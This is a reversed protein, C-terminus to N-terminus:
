TSSDGYLAMFREAVNQMAKSGPKLDSAAILLKKGKPDALAQDKLDKVKDDGVHDNLKQLGDSAWKGEGKIPAPQDADASAAASSLAPRTTPNGSMRGAQGANNALTEALEPANSLTKAGADLLKAATAAGYKSVLKKGAVAGAAIIPNGGSAALAAGGVGTETLGIFRNGTERAIKNNLLEEAVKSNSFLKKGAKLTDLLEPTGLAKAGADTAKDIHDSIVGYAERAMKEKDTVNLSNKWNAVKGLEQKLEQADALPIPKDGRMTIAELTNELQHTEGRNIPSRYFDGVKKEVDTAADLPNFTSGGADDIAKYVKGMKDGGVSQVAANREAMTESSALPSIVGENLAQRGAALVKDLGFKKITAREAGLARAALYEAGSGLKDGVASVADGALPAAASLAGGAAAGLAANRARDGIQLGDVEGATDGPNAVAALAAGTTAAKGIRGATLAAPAIKAVGLEAAPATAIGGAVMSGYYAKPNSKALAAQRAINEDRLNVYSDDKQNIKFGSKELEADVAGPGAGIADAIKSVGKYAAAQLQPLYGMSAGQGFGEIAAGAADSKPEAPAPKAGTKQSLYADPDFAGSPGAKSAASKEALYQDPDFPM